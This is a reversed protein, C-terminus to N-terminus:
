YVLMEQHLVEMQNLEGSFNHFIVKGLTKRFIVLANGQKFNELFSTCVAM